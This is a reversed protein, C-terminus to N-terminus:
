NKESKGIRTFVNSEKINQQQKQDSATTAKEDTSNQIPMVGGFNDVFYNYPAYFSFNITTRKEGIRNKLIVLELEQIFSNENHQKIKRADAIAGIDEPHKSARYLGRDQLAMVVDSTFEIGGTEKFSNLSVSNFEKGQKYTDRNVSSIVVVPYGDNTLQKLTAVINDVNDKTTRNKYQEEPRLIQLYDVVVVPKNGTAETHERVAQTIGTITLSMIGDQLYLHKFAKSQYIDNFATTIYQQRTETLNLYQRIYSYETCKKQYELEKKKTNNSNFKEKEYVIQATHKSLLRSYLEKQTIEVSFILVDRGGNAISEAIQLTLATKGKGTEAGLMYLRGDYLGGSLKLDLQGLGTPTPKEPETLIAEYFPALNAELCKAKVKAQIQEPTEKPQPPETTAQQRNRQHTNWGDTYRDQQWGDPNYEPEVIQRAEQWTHSQCSNHLCKYKIAGNSLVIICADKGTHDSNFICHDLIYKTNGNWEETKKINFHAPIYEHPNFAEGRNNNYQPREPPPPLEKALEQLKEIPTIEVKDFTTPELVKAMRHPREPINNGKQALTGYAKCIRSPNFVSTDIEARETSFLMDLAELCHKILDINEKTNPLDIRYLLHYGNGSLAEVPTSFGKEKLYAKVKEATEKSAELEEKTSSIDTPRDPDVDVLLWEYRTIDNDNTAKAGRALTNYNPRAKLGTHLKQLTIYMIYGAYDAKNNKNLIEILNAVNDFYGTLTINGAKNVMRIEFLENKAKLQGIAETIAEANIFHELMVRQQQM